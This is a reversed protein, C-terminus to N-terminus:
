ARAYRGGPLERVVGRLSLMMLATLVEAASSGTRVVIEDLLPTGDIAEFVRAELGDLAPTARASVTGWGLEELIDHASETLVAGDRILQHPGQANPDQARGPVAFVTRGAELAAVATILSGSKLDGEVVVVGSSLGAIIRNRAPFNHAAPPTGIAYASVVTMSSALETNEPPYIRDAGCGLVGISKGGAKLAARHAETDIGRALGSIVTVGSLALDRALNATWTRAFGSCKRTGVVGISRPTVGRLNQLAELPGRVWLVSPPDYIARLAPPYRDDELAILQLNIRNARELETDARELTTKSGVEAIVSADLGQVERLANIKAGLATQASGFHEILTKIRVPGLGPTFHLALTARTLELVHDPVADM